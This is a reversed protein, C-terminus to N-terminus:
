EYFFHRIALVPGVINVHAGVFDPRRSGVENNTAVRWLLLM